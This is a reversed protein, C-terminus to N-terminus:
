RLWMRNNRHDYLCGSMYLPKQQDYPPEMCWFCGGAFTAVALNDGAQNEDAIILGSIFLPLTIVAVLLIKKMRIVQNDSYDHSM